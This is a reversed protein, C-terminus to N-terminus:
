ENFLESTDLKLDSNQEVAYCQHYNEELPMWQKEFVTFYGGERIQLRKKQEEISCTLFIKFQYADRLYPHQSYSGEIINLLKPSLRSGETIQGKQCDYPRYLVTQQKQVPELVECVLRKFDMNGGPIEKWNEARKELPLYFDDMHFINCDFLRGLLNAFETKGSGCRGDIGIVIPERKELGRAGVGFSHIMDPYWSSILKRVAAVAPFCGAYERKLLRYHPHYAERYSPSHHVPPYGKEKWEKLWEEKGPVSLKQLEAIKDSLGEAAGRYEQATLFFLEALMELETESKCFSLPFRCLGGGIPEINKPAADSPLEAMEEQLFSLVSQKETVLHEPGYESQFVLKGYDQMEMEPYRAAHEKLIRFFDDRM